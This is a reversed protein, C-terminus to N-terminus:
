IICTQLTQSISNKTRALSSDSIGVRHAATYSTGIQMVLVNFHLSCTLICKPPFRKVNIDQYHHFQFYIRHTWKSHTHTGFLHPQTSSEQELTNTRHYVSYARNSLVSPSSSAIWVNGGCLVHHIHHFECLIHHTQYSPMFDFNVLSVVILWLLNWWLQMFEVSVWWMIFYLITTLKDGLTYKWYENVIFETYVVYEQYVIDIADCKDCVFLFRYFRRLEVYSATHWCSARVCARHGQIFM